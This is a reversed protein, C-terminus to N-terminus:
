VIVTSVCPMFYMSYGEHDAGCIHSVAIPTLIVTFDVLLYLMQLFSIPTARAMEKALQASSSRLKMLTKVLQQVCPRDAECARGIEMVLHSIWLLVLSSREESKALEEEENVTLLGAKSLVESSIMEDHVVAKLHPSADAFTFLM